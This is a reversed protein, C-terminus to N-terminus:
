KIVDFIIVVKFLDGDISIDFKGGQLEVLNRAISLGLGSGETNRSKDGRVFREMLEEETIDLEYRSINRYTIIAKGNDETLNMYVRTDPQAYKCVNNLLNDFVRWLLKGDASIQIDDEPLKMIFQLNEKEGREKYEGMTQSMLVGVQCPELNISINGTSAKSADVIDETLKKLRKSQRDLVEIYERIKEDEINEKELLDVYNIISTLPTKIDHSVNTILEAKFRESKMRQEVAASIGNGISNLNDAHDAFDGFLMKKDIQYGLDGEAILKAGKALRQMCLSLYIVGAVILFAGVIWCFHAFTSWYMEAAIILNIMLLVITALVSKWILPLKRVVKNMMKLASVVLRKCLRCLKYIITCKWWSGQRVKAAFLLATGCALTSVTLAMVVLAVVIIDVEYYELWRSSMGVFQLPMGISLVTFVIGIVVVFDLPLKNLFSNEKRGKGAASFLFVMLFIIVVLLVVCLVLAINKQEFLKSQVNYIAALRQPYLELIDGDYSDPDALSVTVNIEGQLHHIFTETYIDASARVPQELALEEFIEESFSERDNFSIAYGIGSAVNAERKLYNIDDLYYGEGYIAESLDETLNDSFDYALWHLMDDHAAKENKSYWGNNANVAVTICSLVFIVICCQLLMFTAIKAPLNGKLKNM